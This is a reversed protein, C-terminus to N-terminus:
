GRKLSPACHVTRPWMSRRTGTGATGWSTARATRFPRVGAPEAPQAAPRTGLPRVASVWAPKPVAVMKWVAWNAAEAASMAALAWAFWTVVWETALKKKWGIEETDSCCDMTVPILSSLYVKM